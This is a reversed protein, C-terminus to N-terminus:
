GQGRGQGEAPPAEGEGGAPGGGRDQVVFRRCNRQIFEEILESESRGLMKAHVGLRQRADASLTFCCRERAARPGEAPHARDRRRVTGRRRREDITGM